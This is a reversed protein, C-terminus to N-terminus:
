LITGALPSEEEKPALRGPFLPCLFLMGEFLLLLALLLMKLALKLSSFGELDTSRVWLMRLEPSLEVIICFERKLLSSASFKSNNRNLGESRTSCTTQPEIWVKSRM